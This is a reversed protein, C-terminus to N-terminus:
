EVIGIVIHEIGCNTMDYCWKEAQKIAGEPTDNEYEGFYETNM